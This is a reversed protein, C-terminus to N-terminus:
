DIKEAKDSTKSKSNSINSGFLNIRSTSQNNQIGEWGLNIKLFLKKANFSFSIKGDFQPNIREELFKRIKFDMLEELSKSHQIKKCFLYLSCILGLVFISVLLIIGLGLFAEIRSDEKLLSVLVVLGITLVISVLLAIDFSLGIKKKESNKKESYCECMKITVQYCLAELEEKSLTDKLLEENYTSTDFNYSVGKRKLIIEKRNSKPISNVRILTDNKPKYNVSELHKKIKDNFQLKLKKNPTSQFSANIAKQNSTLKSVSLSM